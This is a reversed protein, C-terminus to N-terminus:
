ECLRRFEAYNDTARKITQGLPMLLQDMRGLDVGHPRCIEKIREVYLEYCKYTDDGSGAAKWSDATNLLVSKLGRAADGEIGPDIAWLARVAHQDYIPNSPDQMHRIFAYLVVDTKGPKPASDQYKAAFSQYVQWKGLKWLLAEAVTKPQGSKVYTYSHGPILPPFKASDYKRIQGLQKIASTVADNDLLHAEIKRRLDIILGRLIENDSMESEPTDLASM